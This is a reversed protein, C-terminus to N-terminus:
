CISWIHTSEVKICLPVVSIANWEKGICRNMIMYYQVSLVIFSHKSKRKSITQWRLPTNAQKTYWWCRLYSLSFIFLRWVSNFKYWIKDDSTHSSIISWTTEERLHNGVSRVVIHNWELICNVIADAHRRTVSNYRALTVVTLNRELISERMITWSTHFMKACYRCFYEKYSQKLIKKLTESFSLICLHSFYRSMYMDKFTTVEVRSMWCFLVSQATFGWVLLCVFFCQKIYSIQLLINVNERVSSCNMWIDCIKLAHIRLVCDILGICGPFHWAEQWWTRMNNHYKDYLRGTFTLCAQADACATEGFGESNACM